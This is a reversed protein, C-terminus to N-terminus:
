RIISATPSSWAPKFPNMTWYISDGITLLGFKTITVRVRTKANKAGIGTFTRHSPSSPSSYGERNGIVVWKGNVERQLEMKWGFAHDYFPATGTSPVHVIFSADIERGRGNISIEGPYVHGGRTITIKKAKIAITIM